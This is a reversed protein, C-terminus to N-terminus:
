FRHLKQEASQSTRYTSFTLRPTLLCLVNLYMIVVRARCAKLQFM